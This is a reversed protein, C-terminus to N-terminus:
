DADIEDGLYVSLGQDYFSKFTFNIESDMLRQLMEAVTTSGLNKMKNNNLHNFLNMM